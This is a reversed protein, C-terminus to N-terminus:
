ILAITRVMARPIKMTIKEEIMFWKKSKNYEWFIAEKNENLDVVILRVFAGADVYSLHIAAQIISNENLAFESVSELCSYGEIFPTLFYKSEPRFPRVNTENAYKKIQLMPLFQQYCERFDVVSARNFDIKSCIKVSQISHLIYFLGISFGFWPDFRTMKSHDVYTLHFLSYLVRIKINFFSCVNNKKRETPSM